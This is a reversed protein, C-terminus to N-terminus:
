KSCIFPLPVRVIKNSSKRFTVGVACNVLSWKTITSAMPTVLLKFVSLRGNSFFGPMGRFSRKCAMATPALSSSSNVENALRKIRRSLCIVSFSLVCKASFAPPLLTECTTFSKNFAKLGSTSSSISVLIFSSSIPAAGTSISAAM